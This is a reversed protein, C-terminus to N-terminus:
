VPAVGRGGAVLAIAAVGYAAGHVKIRLRNEILARFPSCCVMAGLLMPVGGLWLGDVVARGGMLGLVAAGLWAFVQWGVMAMKTVKLAEAEVHPVHYCNGEALGEGDDPLWYAM